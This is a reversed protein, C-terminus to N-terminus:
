VTVKEGIGADKALELVRHALYLDQAALGQYKFVIVEDQDVRGVKRNVLVEGLEAYIHGESVLGKKMPIIIDGAESLAAEKVDVVVKAKLITKEDLERTDPTHSGIAVVLCGKKLWDGDLVPTKSTTATVVIDSNEVADKASNSPEVEIGLSSSMAQSFKERHSLTPSFVKAKELDVVKSIAELLARAQVGSGLVGITKSSQMSLYKAAVAGTAGTRIATLYNSKILALLNGNNTDILLLSASTTPLGYKVPNQPLITFVKVSAIPMEESYAPMFGITTNQNMQIVTRLPMRIKGTALDKFSREVVDIAMETKLLSRVDEDSLLLVM